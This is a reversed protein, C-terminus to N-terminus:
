RQRLSITGTFTELEVQAAGTGLTLTFRKRRAPLEPLKEALLSHVHGEFSRIALAANARPPLSLDLDGSHTAFQYRGDPALDGQWSIDGSVTSAAVSSSSVSELKVSGSVSEAVLEGEFGAVRVANNVSEIAARGRGGELIVEGETSGLAIEGAGGAVRVDGRVTRAGVGAATGQVSIDLYTGAISVPMWAPVDITFDIAHPKGTRARARVGITRGETTVAISDTAFHTARVRVEDRDWARIAVEGGFLRVDLATGQPAPVIKEFEAARLPVAGLAVAILIAAAGSM